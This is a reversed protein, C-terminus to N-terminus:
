AGKIGAIAAVIQDVLKEDLGRMKWLAGMAMAENQATKGSFKKGIKYAQRGVNLYSPIEITSVGEAEVISKVTNEMTALDAFAAAEQEVMVDKQAEFRARIVDPDIKAAYKSTRYKPDRVPM